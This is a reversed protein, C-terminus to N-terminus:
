ANQTLALFPARALCSFVMREPIENDENMLGDSGVKFDHEGLGQDSEKSGGRNLCESWDSGARDTGSRKSVGDFHDRLFVVNIGGEFTSVIDENDIGSFLFSEFEWVTATSTGARGTGSLHNVTLNVLRFLGEKIVVLNFLSKNKSANGVGLTVAGDGHVHFVLEELNHFILECFIM